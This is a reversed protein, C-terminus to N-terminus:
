VLNQNMYKLIQNVDFALTQDCIFKTIHRGIIHMDHFGDAEPLCLAARFYCLEHGDRGSRERPSHITQHLVSIHGARTAIFILTNNIQRQRLAPFGGELMVLPKM